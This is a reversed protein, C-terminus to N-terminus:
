SCLTVIEDGSKRSLKIDRATDGYESQRTAILPYMLLTVEVDVRSEVCSNTVVEKCLTNIRNGSGRNLYIDRATCGYKSTEYDVAFV